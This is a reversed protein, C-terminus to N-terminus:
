KGSQKEEMRKLMAIFRPDGHLSELDSDHKAWEPRNWGLEVGRELLDLAREKRGAVAHLCAINYIMALDNPDIEVARNAWEEALEERGIISLM